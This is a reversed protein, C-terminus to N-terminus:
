PRRPRSWSGTCSGTPRARARGRARALELARLERDQDVGVVSGADQLEEGRASALAVGMRAQGLEPHLVAVVEPQVDLGQPRVQQVVLVHPADDQVGTVDGLALRELLLELVLREVVRDRPERVPRQELVADLVHDLPLRPVVERDRDQEHVQVVELRDVVREAVRRAVPHEALDALPQLVREPLGVGGSPEAAVLERDQELVAPVPDVRGLDGRPDERRELTREVELALLDEGAGRDADRGGVGPGATGLAGLLQQPVGVDRHVHGLLGALAAVLDEFGRHVVRRELAELELRVQLAGDVVALEDQVVLRHDLERRARDLPELREDAPLVRRATEDRRQVEDRQGLLGPRITGSPRQTSCSAHM